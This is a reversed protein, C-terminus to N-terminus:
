QEDDSASALCAVPRLRQAGVARLSRRPAYARCMVFWSSGYPSAKPRASGASSNSCPVM